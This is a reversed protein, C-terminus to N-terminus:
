EVMECAVYEYNVKERINVKLSCGSNQKERRVATDDTVKEGNYEQDVDVAYVEM